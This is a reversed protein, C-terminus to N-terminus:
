KPVLFPSGSFGSGRRTKPTNSLQEARWYSSSIFLFRVKDSYDLAAFHDCYMLARALGTMFKEQYRLHSYRDFETIVVVPSKPKIEEYFLSFGYHLQQM